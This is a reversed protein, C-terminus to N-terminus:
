HTRDELKQAATWQAKARLEKNNAEISRLVRDINGGGDNGRGYSFSLMGTLALLLTKKYM